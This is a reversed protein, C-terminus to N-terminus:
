DEIRMKPVWTSGDFRDFALDNGNKIIRWTGVISPDGLYVGSTNGLVVHGDKMIVSDIMVGTATSLENITDATISTEVTLDGTMTGGATQLYRADGETRTYLEARTYVDATGAKDNLQGQVGSTVGDLYGFETDSINGGAIQTAVIPGGLAALETGDWFLSGGDNYLRNDTTAPAGTLDSIAIAGPNGTGNGAGPTLTIDGGDGDSDTAADQGKIVFGSGAGAANAPRALSFATDGGVTLDGPLADGSADIYRGDSEVKTYVDDADAKAALATDIQSQTYVDAADAKAALATDIQSQTYVDAVDAKAALATDIQSQTYVDDVDAKADLLGDTEERTYADISALGLRLENWYLDGGSNYLRNTTTTPTGALDGILIGGPHGTGAGAGPTLAIDGGDTDSGPAASQGSITISAGAGDANPLRWITFANDGGIMLDGTLVGGSARLYRSDSTERTYVSSVNAKTAMADDVETQTYVADADAKAALADDIQTQTYVDAADAKADLLTDAQTRAYVNEVDAKAGLAADVQTQTYVAGADAKADLLVDAETKTYVQSLRPTNDLQDQISRTIGDLHGFEANSVTGTGVATADISRVEKAELAFPVSHVRVRDPFVDDSADGDPTEDTDIGVEYWAEASDLVAQPLVLPLSFLGEASVEVTGALDGGLQVGDTGADFFRVQWARTGTIPLGDNGVLAGNINVTDPAAAWAYGGIVAVLLVLVGPICLFRPLSIM